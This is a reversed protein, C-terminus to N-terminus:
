EYFILILYFIILSPQSKGHASIAVPVNPVVFGYMHGYLFFIGMLFYADVSSYLYADTGTLLYRISGGDLFSTTKAIFGYLHPHVWSKGMDSLSCAEVVASLSCAEVVALMLVYMSSYLYGEVLLLNSASSCMQSQEDSNIVRCRVYNKIHCQCKSNM